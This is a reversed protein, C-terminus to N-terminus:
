ICVHITNLWKNRMNCLEISKNYPGYSYIYFINGTKEGIIQISSVNSTGHISAECLTKDKEVYLHIPVKFYESLSMLNYKIRTQNAFTQFLTLSFKLVSKCHDLQDIYVEPVLIKFHFHWFWLRKGDM